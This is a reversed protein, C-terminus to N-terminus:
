TDRPADGRRRSVCRRALVFLKHLPRLRDSDGGITGDRDPWNEEAGKKTCPTCGKCNKERAQSARRKGHERRSAHKRARGHPFISSRELRTLSLVHRADLMSSAIYTVLALRASARTQQMAAHRLRLAISAASLTFCHEFRQLVRSALLCRQTTPPREAVYACCACAASASDVACSCRTRYAHM